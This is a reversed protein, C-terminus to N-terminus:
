LEKCSMLKVHGEEEPDFFQKPVTSKDVYGFQIADGYFMAAKQQAYRIYSFADDLGDMAEDLLDEGDQEQETTIKYHLGGLGDAETGGTEVVAEPKYPGKQIIGWLCWFASITNRWWLVQNHLQKVEEEVQEPSKDPSDFTVYLRIFHLQQAQLPYRTENMVHAKEEDHYDAMWECFHDGFEYAQVSCGSYEFDIVFLNTHAVLLLEDCKGEDSLLLLGLGKAVLDELVKERLLLNGNQTDNHCFRLISLPFESIGTGYHALLWLRYKWVNAKFTDFDTLVFDADLVLPCADYLRVVQEALPLWKGILDWLMPAEDTPDLDINVHLEKMRKAIMELIVPDRIHDKDLTVYGDLFQEFRGNTFIGLLKPGINKQSLKKLLGLEKERNIVEDTNKGYVRLLMPPFDEFLIRFISNTLAGSIRNVKLLQLQGAHIRHWQRIRLAQIILLLEEKFFDLPLSADLSAGVTPVHSRDKLHSRSHLRARPTAVADDDEFDITSVRHLSGRLLGRSLTPRLGRLQLKSRARTRLKLRLRPAREPTEPRLTDM